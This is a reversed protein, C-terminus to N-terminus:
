LMNKMVQRCIPGPKSSSQSLRGNFLFYFIETKLKDLHSTVRTMASCREVYPGPRFMKRHFLSISKEQLKLHQQQM